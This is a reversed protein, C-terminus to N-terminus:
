ILISNKSHPQLIEYEIAQTM